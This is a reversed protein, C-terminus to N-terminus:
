TNEGPKAVQPHRKVFSGRRKLETACFVFRWLMGYNEHSGSHIPCHNRLIEQNNM